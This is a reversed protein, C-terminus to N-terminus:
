LIRSSAISIDAYKWALEFRNRFNQYNPQDDLKNYANMLGVLAWGNEPYNKLDDKYVAIAEPYDGTEILVAGLNHRVSFFWDPPEQYKLKDEIAMASRLLRVAATYDGEKAHIEGELTEAAIQCIDYVSNVGFITLKKLTSDQMISMMANLHKGAKRTKNQALEAMGQAYHWIVRPYELEKDPEPTNQIENWKGLKIQVFLPISYFHQLMSWNPNLLLKNYAHAKTQNAGIMANRSEGNLTGCAALFHYNHPFLALPYSGNAHCAEVYASDVLVAKQNAVVGEHYKGTRIYIHSPMHVLHGAGPVLNCLLDASALGKEPNHSMEVGHIYYHNLGPHRPDKKLGDELVALIEPTWPQITGDKKFLDWPHLDMLSEAFLASINMDDPFDKYVRRMQAAYASDLSWRSLGPDNSYRFTLATILAKEKPTCSASLREAKQVADYARQLNDPEMGFNYNPGLVNAFGWWSMACTSDLRAAQYFSRAAEAHNFGFVLMMGQNFYQQAEASKTTINFNIGDLGKLLPAKKTSTYWAKDVLEPMCYSESLALRGSELSPTKKGSSNCSQLIFICILGHFLFTKLTFIIKM